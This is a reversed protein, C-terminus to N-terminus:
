DIQHAIIDEKKAKRESHNNTFDVEIPALLATSNIRHLSMERLDKTSPVHDDVLANNRKSKDRKLMKAENFANEIFSYAVPFSLKIPVSSTDEINIRLYEIDM